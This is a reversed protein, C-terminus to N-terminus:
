DLAPCGSRGRGDRGTALRRRGALDVHAPSRCPPEPRSSRMPAVPARAARLGAAEAAVDAYVAELGRLLGVLECGDATLRYVTAEDRAIVGRERLATLAKSLAQRSVPVGTDPHTLQELMATFTTSGSARIHTLISLTWTGRIRWTLARINELEM